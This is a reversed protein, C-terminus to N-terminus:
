KNRRGLPTWGELVMICKATKEVFPVNFKYELVNLDDYIVSRSKGYEEKLKDLTTSKVDSLLFMMDALRETKTMEKKGDRFDM